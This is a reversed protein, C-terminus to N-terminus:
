VPLLFIATEHMRLLFNAIYGNNDFLRYAARGIPEKSSLAINNSTILLWLSNLSLTLNSTVSLTLTGPQGSIKHFM